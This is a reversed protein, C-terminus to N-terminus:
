KGKRGPRAKIWREGVFGTTGGRVSKVNGFIEGSRVKVWGEGSVEDTGNFGNFAFDLRHEKGAKWDLELKVTGFVMTGRGDPKLEIYGPERLDIFDQPWLETQILRWKGM